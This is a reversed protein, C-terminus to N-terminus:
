NQRTQIDMILSIPDNTMLFNFGYDQAERWYLISDRAMMWTAIRLKGAYQKVLEKDDQQNKEYDNIYVLAPTIEPENQTMLDAYKKFTESDGCRLLCQLRVGNKEFRYQNKVMADYGMRNCLYISNYAGCEEMLPFIDEQYDFQKDLHVFIKENCAKLVEEVTPILFPTVQGYSDLLRLQRLEELTWDEVAESRPLGNTNKMVSVNTTRSLTSDHMCVMVGDKTTQVDIETSDAGCLYASINAELSNEPYYIHEGRHALVWTRGEPDYLLNVKNDFSLEEEDVSYAYRYCPLFAMSDEVYEAREQLADKFSLSASDMDVNQEAMLLGALYSIGSELGCIDKGEVFIQHNRAYVKCDGYDFDQVDAGQNLGVCIYDAGEAYNKEEIVDLTIGSRRGIYRQLDMAAQQAAKGGSKGCVIQYEALDKGDIRISEVPYEASYMYFYDSKMVPNESTLVNEKFYTLASLASAANRGAILIKEGVAGVAWDMYGIKDYFESLEERESIGVIIEKGSEENGTDEKGSEIEAGTIAAIDAELQKVLMRIEGGSEKSYSIRYETNKNEAIKLETIQEQSVAEQEQSIETNESGASNETQENGCGALMSVTLLFSIAIGVIRKKM